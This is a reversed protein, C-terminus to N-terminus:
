ARDAKRRNPTEAPDSKRRLPNLGGLPRRLMTHGLLLPLRSSPDDGAAGPPTGRYRSEFAELWGATETLALARRDLEARGAPTLEYIRRRSAGRSVAGASCVMGDAELKRLTRYVLGSDVYRGNQRPRTLGVETLRGLLEYGHAPQEGLLLLLSPSLHDKLLVPKGSRASAAPAPVTPM